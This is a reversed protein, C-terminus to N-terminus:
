KLHKIKYEVFSKFNDKVTKIIISHDKEIKQKKGIKKFQSYFNESFYKIKEIFNLSQELEFLNDEGFLDVVMDMMEANFRLTDIKSRDTLDFSAVTLEVILTACIQILEKGNILNTNRENIAIMTLIKALRVCLESNEVKFKILIEKVLNAISLKHEYELVKQKSENFYVFLNYIVEIFKITIEDKQNLDNSLLSELEQISKKALLELLVFLNEIDISSDLNLSESEKSLYLTDILLLYTKLAEYRILKVSKHIHEIRDTEQLFNENDKSITKVLLNMIKLSTMILRLENLNQDTSENKDMEIDMGTLNNNEDMEDDSCDDWSEYDEDDQGNDKVFCNILNTLADLALIKSESSKELSKIIKKTENLADSDNAKCPNQTASNLNENLNFDLALAVLSGYNKVLDLLSKTKIASDNKSLVMINTLSGILYLKANLNFYQDQSQGDSSLYDCANQFFNKEVFVDVLIRNLNENNSILHFIQAISEALESYGRNIGLLAETLWDIHNQTVFNTLGSKIECLNSITNFLNTLIGAETVSFNDNSSKLKALISPDFISSLLFKSFNSSKLLYGAQEEDCVSSVLKLIETLMWQSNPNEGLNIFREVMKNIYFQENFILFHNLYPLIHSNEASLLLYHKLILCIQDFEVNERVMLKEMINKITEDVPKNQYDSLLLQWDSGVLETSLEDSDIMPKHSFKNFKVM